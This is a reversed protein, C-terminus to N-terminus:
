GNKKKKKKKQQIQDSLPKNEQSLPQSITQDINFVACDVLLLYIYVLVM